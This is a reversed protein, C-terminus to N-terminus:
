APQDDGADALAARLAEHASEYVAVQDAGPLDALGDLSALVSDVGPHGTTGLAPGPVADGEVAPEPGFEESVDYEV